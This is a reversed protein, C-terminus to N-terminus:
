CKILFYVEKSLPYHSQLLNNSVFNSTSSPLTANHYHTQTLNGSHYNVYHFHYWGAGSTGGSWGAGGHSHGTGGGPGSAYPGNPGAARTGSSGGANSSTNTNGSVGHAHDCYGAGSTQSAQATHYHAYNHAGFNTTSANIGHAHSYANPVSAESSLTSFPIRPNPNNTANVVLSPVAFTTTGNGGYTGGLHAGLAPYSSIDHVTGDCLLWGDPITSSVISIIAGIPYNQINGDKDLIEDSTIKLNEM